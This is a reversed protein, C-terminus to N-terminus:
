GERLFSVEHALRRMLLFQFLPRPIDFGRNKSSRANTKSLALLSFFASALRASKPEFGEREAM